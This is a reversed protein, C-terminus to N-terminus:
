VEKTLKNIKFNNYLIARAKGNEDKKISLNKSFNRPYNGIEDTIILYSKLMNFERESLYSEHLIAKAEYSDSELIQGTDLILVNPVLTDDKIQYLEIYGNVIDITGPKIDKPSEKFIKGSRKFLETAIKNMRKHRTKIEIDITIVLDNLDKKTREAGKYNKLVKNISFITSSIHRKEAKLSNVRIALLILEKSLIDSRKKM